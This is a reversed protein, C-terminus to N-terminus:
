WGRQSKIWDQFEQTEQIRGFCKPCKAFTIGPMKVLKPRNGSWECSTCKYEKPRKDVKDESM